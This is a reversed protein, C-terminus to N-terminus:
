ACLDFSVHMNIQSWSVVFASERKSKNCTAKCSQHSVLKFLLSTLPFHSIANDAIFLVELTCMAIVYMVYSHSQVLAANACIAQLQTEVMRMINHSCHLVAM